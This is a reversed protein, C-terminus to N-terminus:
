ECVGQETGRGEADDNMGFSVGFTPQWAAVDVKPDRSELELRARRAKALLALREADAAPRAALDRDRDFYRRGDVWTGICRAYSSLPNADWLAFDADKGSALTGTRGDVKLQIAPNATVLRLADAESMGGYKVAKAAETNLRRALESSDSNFSVVVGRDEMIAANYPIADYVEFKYAWWDSFSSGGVGHAAMENAVKYGELVHQFTAIRFGLEEALRMFMLMEDARYAHCHVLRKGALVEALAELQLDRRPPIGDKSSRWESQTRQYDRAALFRDRLWAEVGMRTQPFRTTYDDGWNSQKVNEGLAFKIGPPAEAFRLGSAPEMFRLKLVANQGGIVNASGHLLNIATVGSALQRYIQISEADVIDEVRVEATASASSENTGGSLASHSHCDILGPTVHKGHGDIVVAGRPAELSRGVAVIKGDRALLDGEAVTDEEGSTWITAGRIFVASPAAEPLPPYPADFGALLTEPPAPVHATAAPGKLKRGRVAGGAAEGGSPDSRGARWEGELHRKPTVEGTVLVSGAGALGAVREPLTLALRGWELEPPPLAVHTTDPPTGDILTGSLEGGQASIKVRAAGPPDKPGRDLELEWEGSVEKQTVAKPDPEYRQGDVWVELVNTQQDFLDGDTVTLNAIKGRAITGLQDAVGLLKAPETTVAALAATAPLGRAVAHRARDRWDDRKVIGQATFAFVIGERHLRHPNSPALEWHRLTVLDVNIEEEDEDWRPPLPFNLSVVLPMRAERIAQRWKYDDCGGSVVWLALGFERAIASARLVTQADEAEFAVPMPGPKREVVAPELAALARNAEPREDGRPDKEYAAWAAAHHEADLFTQRILAISGMLSNPYGNGDLWEGHEFAVHQAVEARLLVREPDTQDTLNVLASAGRFVGESPVALVATFGAERLEALFDSPIVIAGNALEEAMSLEPHVRPNLQSGKRAGEGNAATSSRADANGGKVSEDDPLRLHPEILGAYITRGALDWVRADAPISVKGAAGVGAILGDRIVVTGREIVEGPAPVLTAGTLAHVRPLKGGPYAPPPAAPSANPLALALASGVLAAVAPIMRPPLM